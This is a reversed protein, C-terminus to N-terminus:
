FNNPNTQVALPIELQFLESANRWTVREKLEPRINQLQRALLDQTGPWSTDAHPYDVEVMVRHAGIRELDNWSSPDDLACFWFNQQLAEAPTLDINEWSGYLSQHRFNHDLRDLLGAVWGIGGESICVKLKPFRITVQSFLWEVAYVMAYTGFLTTAVDKPAGPSTPPLGGGSGVHVCVVTDTEACAEFIPDWHRTHISPWGGTREPSEPFSVARVGRAANKRIETAATVPDHLWAIQCPIIRDPYSGAWVEIHWDNWARLTALALDLDKTSTQLRCGAFGPLFSGFNLSAYTGDLDMDAIRAHIDWSGRRMEEFRTPEYSWESVPRGVTANLGINNILRGDYEWAQGGNALEIIRPARDKFKSPVRNEFTDPPEVIHDDVSIVTFRRVQPEPEPLFTVTHERRESRDSWFSDFDDGSTNTIPEEVKSM